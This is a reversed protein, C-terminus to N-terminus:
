ALLSANEKVHVRFPVSSIGIAGDSQAGAIVRVWGVGAEDSEIRLRVIPGSLEEVARRLIAIRQLACWGSVLM